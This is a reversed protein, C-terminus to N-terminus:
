AQQKAQANVFPDRLVASAAAIGYRAVVILRVRYARTLCKAHVTQRFKATRKRQVSSSYTITADKM